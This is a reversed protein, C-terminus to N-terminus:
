DGILSRVEALASACQFPGFARKKHGPLLGLSRRAIFLSCHAIPTTGHWYDVREARQPMTDYKDQKSVFDVSSFLPLFVGFIGRLGLAMYM